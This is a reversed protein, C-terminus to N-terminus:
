SILSGNQLLLKCEAAILEIDDHIYKTATMDYEQGREHVFM